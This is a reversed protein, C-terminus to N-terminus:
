CVFALVYFVWGTLATAFMMMASLWGWVRHRRSYRGPAPDPSFNRLAMVIAYAWVFPTPVAFVLHIFLARHVWGSDYFASPRALENWDAFFRMDIEFAVITVLLITATLLQIKRHWRFQKGRRVLYISILLTLVIAFMAVFVFDLMFTGRTPLFGYHIRALLL